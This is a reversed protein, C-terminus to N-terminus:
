SLKKRIINYKKKEIFIQFFYFIYLLNIIKNIYILIIILININNNINTRMAPFQHLPECNLTSLGQVRGSVNAFNAVTEFIDLVVKLICRLCGFTGGGDGCLSSAHNKSIKKGSLKFAAGKFAIQSGWSPKDQNTVDSKCINERQGKQIRKAHAPLATRQM